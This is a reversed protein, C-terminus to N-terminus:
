SDLMITLQLLIVTSCPPACMFFVKDLVPAPCNHYVTSTVLWCDVNRDIRIKMLCRIFNRVSQFMAQKWVKIFYVKTSSYCHAAWRAELQLPLMYYQWDWGLRCDRMRKDANILKSERSQSGYWNAKLPGHGMAITWYSEIAQLWDVVSFRHKLGSWLENSILHDNFGKEPWKSLRGFGQFRTCILSLDMYNVPCALGNGTPNCLILILIFGKKKLFFFNVMTQM